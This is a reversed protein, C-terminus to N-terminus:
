LFIQTGLSLVGFINDHTSSIAHPGIFYEKIIYLPSTGIDGFVVGLAGVALLLIKKNLRDHPGSEHGHLVNIDHNNNTLSSAGFSGGLNLLM